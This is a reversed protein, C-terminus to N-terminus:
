DKFYHPLDICDAISYVIRVRVLHHKGYGHIGLIISFFLMYNSSTETINPLTHNYGLQLRGLNCKLIALYDTPDSHIYLCIKPYWYIALIKSPFIRSNKPLRYPVNQLPQKNILQNPPLQNSEWDLYM